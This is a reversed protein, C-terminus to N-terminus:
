VGLTFPKMSEIRGRTCMVESDWWPRASGIVLARRKATRGAEAGGKSERTDLFWRAVARRDEVTSFRM